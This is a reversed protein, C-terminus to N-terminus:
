DADNLVPFITRFEMLESYNLSITETKEENPQITSIKEGKANLVQSDGSHFINNGDYGIRNLGVVYSQNELARATLLAKWPHSRREPWNAIVILLDYPNSKSNRLWEPFRLDYCIFPCIKWGNLEIMLKKNGPSYHNNEDGLSFLHKKDYTNFSGDTNMFVLRNFYKNEHECIFSGVIACNKDSAKQKMWNITEENLTEAFASPNMTFGTTFMEPLVILNTTETISSIKQSFMELNKTKNEWFLDSQILTVKLDKTM